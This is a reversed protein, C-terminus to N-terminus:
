LIDFSFRLLLNQTMQTKDLVQPIRLADLTYDLSAFRNLRYSITNRWDITPDSDSFDAFVELDTLYLLSRSLRVSATFTTEAGEQNFDDLEFFNLDATSTPDDLQVYANNFMNQRLGLGIRWNATAKSNRLLRFNMGVGERLRMSGFSDATRYEGGGPVLTEVRTGDLDNFAVVTDEVVLTDSAFANTLLGFRAYPGFRDNLFRTYVLDGRVRDQTKQTPLAKGSEPDVRLFGEEVEFIGTAFHKGQNYTLYTDFFVTSSFTDQNPLGVVDSTSNLALAGGLVIGKSWGGTTEAKESVVFESADVIGGGRFDGTAEDLVLKFHVLAGEPLTVTAFDTRARYTTGPRVIRYLGPALIWTELGEAQLTDAGYGINLPKRDSVRILEYTGRFPVNNTDVVEVKLGSWRPAVVATKGAVVTTEYPLMEAVAGTGVRVTYTGPAVLIRAGSMGFAVKEDGRFVLIQPERGGAALAPVFIAGQDAPVVTADAALQEDTSPATWAFLDSM